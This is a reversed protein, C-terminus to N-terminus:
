RAIKLRLGAYTMLRTTRESGTSLGVGYAGEVFLHVRSSIAGQLGLAGSMAGRDVADPRTLQYAYQAGAYPSWMSRPTFYWFAGGHVHLAPAGIGTARKDADDGGHSESGILGGRVAIRSTIFRTVDSELTYNVPLLRTSSYVHELYGAAGIMLTGRDGIIRPETEESATDPPSQASASACALCLLLLVMLGRNVFM